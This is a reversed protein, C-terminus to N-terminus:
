PHWALWGMFMGTGFLIAAIAMWVLFLRWPPMLAVGARREVESEQERRLAAAFDLQHVREIFESPERENV